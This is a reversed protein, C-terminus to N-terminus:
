PLVWVELSIFKIGARDVALITEAGYPWIGRYHAFIKTCGYLPSQSVIRLYKLEAESQSFEGGHLQLMSDVWEIYTRQLCYM